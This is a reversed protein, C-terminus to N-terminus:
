DENYNSTSLKSFQHILDYCKRKSIHEKNCISILCWDFKIWTDFNDSRIPSILKILNVLRIYKNPTEDDDNDDDIIDLQQISKNIVEKKPEEKFKLDWDEYDEKYLFCL